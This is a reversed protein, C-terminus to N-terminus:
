QSMLNALVSCGSLAREGTQAVCRSLQPVYVDIHNAFYVFGSRQGQGIREGPAVDSRFRSFRRSAHVAWVVDDGEDTRVWVAYSSIPNIRNWLGTQDSAARTWLETVKGESPSRLVTIGPATLRVRVRLAQRDLWADHSNETVLVRGNAPSLVARPSPPVNRRPEYFVVFISACLLWLPASWLGGFYHTVAAAAGAVVLLPRWGESAIM